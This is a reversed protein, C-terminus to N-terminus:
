ILSLTLFKNVDFVISEPHINIDTENLVTGNNEEEMFDKPIPGITKKLDDVSKLLNVAYQNDIQENQTYDESLFDNEIFDVANDGYLLNFDHPLNNAVRKGENNLEWFEHTSDEKLLDDKEILEQKAMNLINIWKAEKDYYTIEHETLFRKGEGEIFFRELEKQLNSLSMRQQNEEVLKVLIYNKYGNTQM